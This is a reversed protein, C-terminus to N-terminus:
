EEEPTWKPPEIFGENWGFVSGDDPPIMGQKELFDLLAPIEDQMIFLGIHEELKKIMESRKM